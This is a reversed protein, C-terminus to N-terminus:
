QKCERKKKLILDHEASMTGGGAGSCLALIFSFPVHFCININGCGGGYNRCGVYIVKPSGGTLSSDSKPPFNHPFRKYIPEVLNSGSPRKVWQDWRERWEESCTSMLSRLVLKPVLRRSALMPGLEGIVGLITLPLWRARKSCCFESTSVSKELFISVM